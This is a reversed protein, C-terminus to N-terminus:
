SSAGRSRSTVWPAQKMASVPLERTCRKEGCTPRRWRITTIPHDNADGTHSGSAHMAHRLTLELEEKVAVAGQECRM